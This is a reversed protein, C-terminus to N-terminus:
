DGVMEFLLTYRLGAAHRVLEASRVRLGPGAHLDALWAFVAATDGVGSAQIGEPSNDVTPALGHAAATGTIATAIAAQAPPTQAPSNRLRALETAAAQMRALSAQALPLARDIRDRSAFLSSGLSWASAAAIFAACAALARRDRMALALYRRRGDAAAAGLRSIVAGLRSAPPGSPQLTQQPSHPANM